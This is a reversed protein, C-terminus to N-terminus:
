NAWIDGIRGWIFFPLFFLLEMNRPFQMLDVYKLYAEM